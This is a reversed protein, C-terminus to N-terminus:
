KGDLGEMAREWWQIPARTYHSTDPVDLFTVREFGRAEMVEAVERCEARNFDLRGTVLVYRNRTKATVLQSRSPRAFGPRWRRGPRDPVPLAEFWACGMYWLGGRFIEPYLLSLGGAVRGGGSYGGVYIREPDLDYLSIMHHAADLALHYRDWTSRPNGADNAGIWILKRAALLRHMEPWATGGFSFPSVWVFLGWEEDAAYEDPVHVLYTEEAPSYAGADPDAAAVMAHEHGTRAFFTKMDSWPSRTAFSVRYTGLRGAAPKSLPLALQAAVEPSPLDPPPEPDLHDLITPDPEDPLASLFAAAAHSAGRQEQVLQYIHRAEEDRPALRLATELVEAARARDGELYWTRGILLLVTLRESAPLSRLAKEYEARARVTEGQELLSDGTDLWKRITEPNDETGYPTVEDLSRLQMEIPPDPGASVVITGEGARHGVSEVRVSWAGPALGRISWGGRDDTTAVPPGDGSEMRRLEVEAGVLAEGEAGLVVGFAVGPGSWPQALARAAVISLALLFGLLIRRKM